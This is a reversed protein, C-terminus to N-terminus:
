PSLRVLMATLLIVVPFLALELRMIRRMRDSAGDLGQVVAPVLRTHNYGGVAAVVGVVALKGLLVQGYGTTFLGGLPDLEVLALLVGAMGVIGVAFTAAVSFRGVVLMSGDGRRHRARMVTALAVVGGSWVAAAGVHALNALRVIISPESTMTHGTLQFSLLLAAAAIVMPFAHVHRDPWHPSRLAAVILLASAAIRTMAATFMGGGAVIRWADGDLVGGFGQGSIVAVHAILQTGTAVLALAGAGIAMTSLVAQDRPGDPHVAVGFVVAGISGLIGAFALWRSIVELAEPGRDSAGAAQPAPPTEVPTPVVAAVAEAEADHTPVATPAPTAAAPQRPAAAVEAPAPTSTPAPTPTQVPPAVVTFGYTGEIPHGDAGIVRWHVAHPGSALPQDLDVAVTTGDAELRPPNHGIEQDDPGILRVSNDLVDVSQNFELSLTDVAGEALTDPAPTAGALASHAAAPMALLATLLTGLLLAVPVFTRPRNHPTPASRM